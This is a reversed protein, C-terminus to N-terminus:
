WSRSSERHDASWRSLRRLHRIEDKSFAGAFPQRGPVGRGGAEPKRQSQNTRHFKNSIKGKSYQKQNQFNSYSILITNQIIKSM